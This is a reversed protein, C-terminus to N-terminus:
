EPVSGLLEVLEAKKAGDAFEIGLETLREKLQTVTLPKEAGNDDGYIEHVSEDFDTKNIVVYDGQEPSIAKIKITECTDM